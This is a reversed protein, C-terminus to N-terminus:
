LIYMLVISTSEWITELDDLEYDVQPEPTLDNRIGKYGNDLLYNQMEEFSMSLCENPIQSFKLFKM